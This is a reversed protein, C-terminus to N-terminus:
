PSKFEAFPRPLKALERSLFARMEALRAACEPNDFLNTQEYPDADLNYLQDHDAYHPFTRHPGQDFWPKGTFRYYYIKGDYSMVAKEEDTLPADKDPVSLGKERMLERAQAWSAPDRVYGRGEPVRLACYKWGDSVVARMYGIELLLSRGAPAPTKPDLFFRSMDAGDIVADAPPQAGALALLTPALDINAMLAAVRSGPPIQAPWRVVFPVRCGETVSFKGRSQQDSTFIVITNQKLGYEDLKRLVEGVSDDLWTAMANRRDINKAALRERVSQRSPQAGLHATTFGSVTADLPKDMPDGLESPGSFGHPLTPAYYLFFPRDHHADLFEKAHFTQWELHHESAVLERPVGLGNANHQYVAGVFDFGYNAKIYDVGKGYVERVRAAVAPDRPDADRLPPVLFGKEEGGEALHWKGALGTAYGAEHLTKPFIWQGSALTSQLYLAVPENEATHELAAPSRTAYQGTMLSYRSPTCMASTMYFREFVAGEEALSRIHPTLMPLKYSLGPVWEHTCGLREAGTYSPFKRYDYFDWLESEDFDLDDCNIVVINPPVPKLGAAAVTSSLLAMAALLAPLIPKV